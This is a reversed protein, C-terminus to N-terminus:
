DSEDDAYQADHAAQAERSRKVVPFTIREVTSNKECLYAMYKGDNRYIRMECFRGEIWYLDDKSVYAGEDEDTLDSADTSSSRSDQSSSSYDWDGWPNKGEPYDIQQQRKLSTKKWFTVKRRRRVDDFKHITQMPYVSDSDVTKKFNSLKSM